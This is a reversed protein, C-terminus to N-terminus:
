GLLDNLVKSAESQKRAANDRRRDTTDRGHPEAVPATTGVLLRYMHADVSCQAPGAGALLQTLISDIGLDRAQRALPEDFFVRSRHDPRGFEALLPAPGKLRTAPHKIPPPLPPRQLHRPCIGQSGALQELLAVLRALRLLTVGAELLSTGIIRRQLGNAHIVALADPVAGHELVHLLM